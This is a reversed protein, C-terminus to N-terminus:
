TITMLTKKNITRILKKMNRKSIAICGNTPSYNKKAIHLFIASGKNKLIPNTNYNIILIIDYSNNKIFLKEAGFNFPFKILKNYMKSKSDDCWGMNRKIPIKKISSKINVRDKRYFLGTIKFQGRPTSKDGEKKYKTIGRKGISCKIKYHGYYFNKNKIKIHM